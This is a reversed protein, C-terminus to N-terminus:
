EPVPVLSRFVLPPQLRWSVARPHRPARREPVAASEKPPAGLRRAQPPRLALASPLWAQAPTPGTRAGLYEDGSRLAPSPAAWRVAAAASVALREAAAVCRAAPVVVLRRALAPPDDPVQRAADPRDPTREDMPPSSVRSSRLDADAGLVAPADPPRDAGVAPCAAAVRRDAATDGDLVAAMRVESWAADHLVSGDPPEPAPRAAAPRV